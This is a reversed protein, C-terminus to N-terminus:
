CRSSAISVIRVCDRRGRGSCSGSEPRAAEHDVPLIEPSASVFCSIWSIFVPSMPASGPASAASSFCWFSGDRCPQAVLRAADRCRSAAARFGLGSTQADVARGCGDGYRRRHDSEAIDAARRSVGCGGDLSTRRGALCGLGFSRRQHRGLRRGLGVGLEHESFLRLRFWGPDLRGPVMGPDAALPEAPAGGRASAHGRRPRDADTELSEAIGKLHGAGVVALVRKVGARAPESRLKAAMYRDREEILPVFLDRRDHAFEAFTTELVDGEKLREIEEESVKESTLMAALLGTFLTYRKWWGLNASIRKLTVGIERDILLVPLGLEKAVRIAARQEAGPEIGFQDALRQQYASLALNAVVMYVRRQRIVSFLDMESLSKPDMLASFRSRCLEVAVADYEGSQLLTRVEEESARSVHATGLLTLRVDAVAIERKPEISESM